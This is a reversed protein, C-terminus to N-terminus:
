KYDYVRELFDKVAEKENFFLNRGLQEEIREIDADIWNSIVTERDTDPDEELEEDVSLGDTSITFSEGKIWIEVNAPYRKTKVGADDSDFRDEDYGGELWSEWEVNGDEDEECDEPKVDLVYVHSRDRDHRTMRDWEKVAEKNAEELTDYVGLVFSDGSRKDDILLYRKNLDYTEGDENRVVPILDKIEEEDMGHDKLWDEALALAQDLTNAEVYDGIYNDSPEDYRKKYEIAYKKM